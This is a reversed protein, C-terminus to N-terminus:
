SLGWDSEPPHEGERLRLFLGDIQNHLLRTSEGFSYLSSNIDYFSPSRQCTWVSPMPPKATGRKYRITTEAVGGLSSSETMPADGVDNSKLGETATLANLVIVTVQDDVSGGFAMFACTRAPTQSPAGPM